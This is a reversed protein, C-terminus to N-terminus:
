QDIVKRFREITMPIGENPKIKASFGILDRAKSPDGHFKTVDYNRPTTYIIEIDSELHESITTAAEQLTFPYGPLLHLEDCIPNGNDHGNCILHDITRIIGNVTDDIHTFDIIQDGGHIEICEEKLGAIVFRPIVRDHIDSENGYVNSFRLIMAPSNTKKSFESVLREGEVKTKGYVNMPSTPYNERVPFQSPEGYVERSSGFIIWPNSGAAGMSLLINRTGNINTEKCLNPNEEGWIVRSVAALHVVGTIGNGKFLENVENKNRVDMQVFEIDGRIPEINVPNSVSDLLIVEEDREVLARALNSGIFGAGGTILIRSMKNVMNSKTPPTDNSM